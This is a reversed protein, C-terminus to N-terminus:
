IKAVAGHVAAFAGGQHLHGVIVLFAAHPHQYHFGAHVGLAAVFQEATQAYGPQHVNGYSGLQINQIQYFVQQGTRGRRGADEGVFALEEGRLLHLLQQADGHLQIDRHDGVAQTRIERQLTEGAGGAQQLQGM